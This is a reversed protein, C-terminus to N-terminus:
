NLYEVFFAILNGDGASNTGDTATAKITIASSDTESAATVTPNVTVTGRQGFISVNQANSGTKLVYLSLMSVTNAASGGGDTMAESGFYLKNTVTDANAAHKFIATIRMNRGTADLSNAPLSYSALTQESTGFGTSQTATISYIIGEPHLTGSTQV